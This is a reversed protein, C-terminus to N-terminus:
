LERGYIRFVKNLIGSAKEVNRRSVTNNEMITGAEIYEIGHKKCAHYFAQYLAFNVGKNQYSPIVYQLIARVSKIQKRAHLAKILAAPNTRGKMARFVTYYNPVSMVFGVPKDDERRRCIHILDPWLFSKWGAVIRQLDERTPATEFIIDNTAAEIIAHVDDIERDLRSFDAPAIYLQYRDLVKEVLPAIRGYDYRGYDLRYSVTDFDKHFGFDELLSSYYPPNYSTLILPEDQFGEVLIGRRNDQDFPFYTGEVHTAGQDKLMRCMESLLLDACAQDNVCEFHSFFGCKALGLQKSTGVTFLTRALYRGKEEVALATYTKDEFLLKILTKKLDGRMYPVYFPDGQYLADAMDLFLNLQKISTIHVIQMADESLFFM